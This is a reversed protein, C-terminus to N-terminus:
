PDVEKADGRPRRDVHLEVRAGSRFSVRFRDTADAGTVNVVFPTTEGPALTAALVAARGSALLDGARNYALVVVTLGDRAAGTRPNRVLGRVVLRNGDREHELAVLELPADVAKHSAASASGKLTAARSPRSPAGWLLAALAAVVVFAGLAILGYRTSSPSATVPEEAIDADGYIERALASVRADARRREERTVRWAVSTALAAAILSVVTVALLLPTM